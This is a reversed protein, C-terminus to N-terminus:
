LQARHLARMVTQPHWRGGSPTAVGLTTLELAIARSSLGRVKMDAFLPALHRARELAAAKNQVSLQEAGHRGLKVGRAKAAQLADKTRASIMRREKEALAAYLHLMFPDADAGLEAAIFPVRSAMLGAIFAVDRSLRDLKAVVISCRAKKAAALASALQRGASWRM